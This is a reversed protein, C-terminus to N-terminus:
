QFVQELQATAPGESDERLQHYAVATATTLVTSELGQVLMSVAQTIAMTRGVQEAGGGAAAFILLGTVTGQLVLAVVTMALVLVLFGAFVRWRQGRTLAWSRKLAAIPGLREALMAPVSAAWGTLLVFPFAITCATGVYALGVLLLLGLAPFYHRAAAGLVDGVAVPEGQLRCIGARAVALLAAPMLLLLFVVTVALGFWLSPLDRDGLGAYARYMAAAIPAYAVLAVPIVLGANRGWTTFTGGLFRGVTFTEAGALGAQAPPSVPYAVAVPSPSAPSVSGWGSARSPQPPPPAPVNGWGGAPSQPPPSSVGGWGAAAIPQRCRPCLGDGRATHKLQCSPCQIWEAM